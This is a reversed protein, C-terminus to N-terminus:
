VCSSDSHVRGPTMTIDTPVFGLSLEESLAEAIVETASEVNTKYAFWDNSHPEAAEKIASVIGALPREHPNGFTFDAVGDEAIFHQEAFEAVLRISEGAAVAGNSVFGM